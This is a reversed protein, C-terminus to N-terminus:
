FDFPYLDDDEEDDHGSEDNNKPELINKLKEYLMDEDEDSLDRNLFSTGTKNEVQKILDYVKQQTEKPVYKLDPAEILTPASEVLRSIMSWLNKSAQETIPEELRGSISTLLSSRVSESFQRAQAVTGTKYRLMVQGKMVEHRLQNLTMSKKASINGTKQFSKLAPTMLDEKRLRRMADKLNKQEAKALALLETKNMRNIEEADYSLLEERTM